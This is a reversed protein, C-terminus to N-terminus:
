QKCEKKICYMYKIYIYIYERLSKSKSKNVLQLVTEYGLSGTVDMILVYM